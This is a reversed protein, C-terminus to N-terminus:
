PKIVKGAGAMKEVISYMNTVTGVALKDALGYFNLCTGCTLIEVGREAMARLDEVSDSDECTLRAGSNYFLMTAPLTELQSLAYIFGKILTRGLKEDGEGMLDSGFVAVLNGGASVAACDQKEEGTKPTVKMTVLYLEDSKKESEVAFGKEGALRTLNQVAVENDVRVELVGSGSMERIAQNAKVVPVPCKDGVANVIIDAM